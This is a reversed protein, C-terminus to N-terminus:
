RSARDHFYQIRNEPGFPFALERKAFNAFKPFILEFTADYFLAEFLKVFHVRTLCVLGKRTLRFVGKFSRFICRISM